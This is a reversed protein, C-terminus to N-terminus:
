YRPALVGKRILKICFYDKNEKQFSNKYIAEGAVVYNKSYSFDLMVINSLMIQLNGTMISTGGKIFSPKEFFFGSKIYTEHSKLGTLEKVFQFKIGGGYRFISYDYAANYVIDSSTGLAADYDSSWDGSRKVYDGEAFFHIKSDDWKSLFLTLNGGYSMSNGSEGASGAGWGYTFFPNAHLAIGGNSSLNIRAELGASINPFASVQVSSKKHNYDNAIIPLSEYGLGIHMKLNTEDDLYTDQIMMAIAAVGAVATAYSANESNDTQQAAAVRAIRQATKISDEIRKENLAQEYTNPQTTVESASTSNSTLKSDDNNQEKAEDKNSISAKPKEPEKLEGKSTMEIWDGDSNAKAQFKINRMGLQKIRNIGYKKGGRIIDNGVCVEKDASSILGTADSLYSTNLAGMEAKTLSEYPNLIFYLKSTSENGCVLKAYLEGTVRIKYPTANQVNAAFFQQGLGWSSKKYYFQIRLVTGASSHGNSVWELMSNKIDEESQANCLLANFFIAILFAKKM